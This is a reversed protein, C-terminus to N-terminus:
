KVKIRSQKSLQKKLKAFGQKDLKDDLQVSEFSQHNNKNSLLNWLVKQSDAELVPNTVIALQMLYDRKNRDDITKIYLLAEDPYIRSLIYDKTWGYESALLDIIDDLWSYESKSIDESNEM